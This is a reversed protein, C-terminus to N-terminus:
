RASELGLREYQDDPADHHDMLRVIHGEMIAEIERDHIPQQQAPDTHLDFLMTEDQNGAGMKKPIRLLPVGKTFSFSRDLAADGLEALEGHRPVITYQALPSNDPKKPGRM